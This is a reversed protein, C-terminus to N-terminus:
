WINAFKVLRAISRKRLGGPSMACHFFEGADNGADGEPLDKLFRFLVGVNRSRISANLLCRIRLRM